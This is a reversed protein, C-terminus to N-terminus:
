FEVMRLLDIKLWKVPERNKCFGTITIFTYISVNLILNTPLIM